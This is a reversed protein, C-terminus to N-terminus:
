WITLARQGISAVAFTFAPRCIGIVLKSGRLRIYPLCANLRHLQMRAVERLTVGSRGARLSNGCGLLCLQLTQLDTKSRAEYAMVDLTPLYKVFLKANLQVLQCRISNNLDLLKDLRDARASTARSSLDECLVVLQMVLLLFDLKFPALVRETSLESANRKM